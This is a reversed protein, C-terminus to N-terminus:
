AAPVRLGTSDAPRGARLLRRAYNQDDKILGAYVTNQTTASGAFMEVDVIVSAYPAVPSKSTQLLAFFPETEGVRLNGNGVSVDGSNNEPAPALTEYDRQRSFDRHQFFNPSIVGFPRYRSTVEFRLDTPEMESKDIAGLAERLFANAGVAAGVGAGGMLKLFESRSRLRALVHAGHVDNVSENV